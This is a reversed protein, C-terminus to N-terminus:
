LGRWCSWVSSSPSPRLHRWHSKVKEVPINWTKRRFIVQHNITHLLWSLSTTCQLASLNHAPTPPRIWINWFVVISIQLQWVTITKLNNYQGFRLECSNKKGQLTFPLHRQGFHTGLSFGFHEFDDFCSLSLLLGPLSHDGLNAEDAVAEGPFRGFVLTKDSRHYSWRMTKGSIKM